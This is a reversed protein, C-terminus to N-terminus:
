LKGSERTLKVPGMALPALHSEFRKWLEETTIVLLRDEPKLLLGAHPLLTRGQRFVAVIELGEGIGIKM